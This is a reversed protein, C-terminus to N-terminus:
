GTDSMSDGGDRGAATAGSTRDVSSQSGRRRGEAVQCLCQQEPISTVVTTGSTVQLLTAYPFFHCCPEGKVMWSVTKFASQLRPTLSALLGTTDGVWLGVQMPYYTLWVRAPYSLCLVKELCQTNHVGKEMARLVNVTVDVMWSHTLHQEDHILKYVVETTYKPVEEVLLAVLRVLAPKLFLALLRAPSKITNVTQQSVKVLRGTRVLWQQVRRSIDPGLIDQMLSVIKFHSMGPFLLPLWRAIHEAADILDQTHSGEDQPVLAVVDEVVRVLSLTTHELVPLILLDVLSPLSTVVDQLRTQLLERSRPLGLQQLVEEIFVVDSVAVEQKPSSPSSPPVLLCNTASIHCWWWWWWWMLVAPRWVSSM